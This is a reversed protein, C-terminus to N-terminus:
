YPPSYLTCQKQNPVQQRTTTPHHLTAHKKRQHLHQRPSSLTTIGKKTKEKNGKNNNARIKTTQNNTKNTKNPTLKTLSFALSLNTHLTADHIM